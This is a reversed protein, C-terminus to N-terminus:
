VVSKRDIETVGSVVDGRSFVYLKGTKTGPAVKFTWNSFLTEAALGQSVAVALLIGCKIFNM